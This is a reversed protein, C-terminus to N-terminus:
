TPECQNANPDSGSVGVGHACAREIESAPVLVRRSVRVAYLEKRDILRRITDKSVALAKATDGISMLQNGM